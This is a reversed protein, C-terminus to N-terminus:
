KVEDKNPKERVEITALREHGKETLATIKKLAWRTLPKVGYPYVGIPFGELLPKTRDVHLKIVRDDNRCKSQLAKWWNDADAKARIVKAPIKYRASLEVFSFLALFDRKIQIWDM